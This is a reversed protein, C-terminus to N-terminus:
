DALSSYRGECMGLVSSQNVACCLSTHVIVCDLFSQALNLCLIYQVCCWLMCGGHSTGSPSYRGQSLHLSIQIAALVSTDALINVTVFDTPM